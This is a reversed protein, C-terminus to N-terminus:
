RRGVAAGPQLIAGARVAHAHSDNLGPIVRRGQVDIMVTKEGRHAEVAAADGVSIFKGNKVAFATANPRREDVTHVKANAVILDAVEAANAAGGMVMPLLWVISRLYTGPMVNERAM